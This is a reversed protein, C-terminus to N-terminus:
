RCPPSTSESQRCRVRIKWRRRHNRRDRYGRHRRRRHYRGRAGRELEIRKLGHWGYIHAVKCVIRSGDTRCLSYNVGAAISGSVVLGIALRGVYENYELNNAQFQLSEDPDVDPGPLHRIIAEFMPKLDTGTGNPETLAIGERANTYLVPFDLQSENADLDIFLDYVEDLVETPRADHRDIKNICVIPVLGSELAKKLM